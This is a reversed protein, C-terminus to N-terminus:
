KMLTDYHTLVNVLLNYTNKHTWVKTSSLEDAAFDHARDYTSIPSIWFKPWSRSFNDKTRWPMPM